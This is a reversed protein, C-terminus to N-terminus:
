GHLERWKRVAEPERPYIPALELPDVPTMAHGVGLLAKASLKPRVISIGLAGARARMGEPLHEDGVLTRVGLGELGEADIVGVPEPHDTWGSEVLRVGFTTKGKSALCILAPALERDLEAAIVLATPVPVVEAGLSEGLMKAAAIAIRLATFGGPGTSVLVRGIRNPALGRRRMVRDIAPILDDGRRSGTRLTEEDLVEVGGGAPRGLAVGPEGMTPNSTEIALIIQGPHM